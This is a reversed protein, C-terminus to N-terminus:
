QLMKLAKEKALKKRYLKAAPSVNKPDALNKDLKKDFGIQLKKIFNKTM